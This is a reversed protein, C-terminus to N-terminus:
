EVPEQLVEEEPQVLDPNMRPPQQLNPQQISGPASVKGGKKNDAAELAKFLEVGSKFEKKPLVQKPEEVVAVQDEQYVGDKFKYSKKHYVWIEERRKANERIEEPNGLNTLLEYKSEACLNAAILLVLIKLM